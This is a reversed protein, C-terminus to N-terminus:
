RTCDLLLALSWDLLLALLRDLLLALLRTSSTPATTATPRGTQRSSRTLWWHRAQSTLSACRSPGRCGASPTWGGTCSGYSVLFILAGLAVVKSQVSM